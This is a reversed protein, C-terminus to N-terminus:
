QVLTRERWYRSLTVQRQYAAVQAACEKATWGLEAAMLSAVTEVVALGQDAAQIMIHTRRDLIDELTLAMEHRIAHLVQAKIVPLAPTLREALAPAERLLKLVSPLEPGYTTVLYGAIEDALHNEVTITAQWDAQYDAWNMIVKELLPPQTQVPPRRPYRGHEQALARAVHNVVEWAMPRYLTLKGGAITVLGPMVEDVRYQRSRLHPQSNPQDWILPRLGAYTSVVDEESLHASPFAQQVAELIYAVEAGTAFVGDLDGEYDTDTTGILVHNGWPALFMFRGDRPSNFTIAAQCPLRERRVVLHVGKTSRLWPWFSQGTLGLLGDTWAGVASVVM